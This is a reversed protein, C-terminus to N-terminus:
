KVRKARMTKNANATGIFFSGMARREINVSDGKRLKIRISDTQRWVQGNDLTIILEGHPAKKISIITAQIQKISNKARQKDEQGFESQRQNTHDVQKTTAVQLPAQHQEIHQKTQSNKEKTVVEDFCTLRQLDDNNKSCDSLKDFLTNAIGFPSVLMLLLGFKCLYTM